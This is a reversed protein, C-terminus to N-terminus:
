VKFQTLLTVQVGKSFVHSKDHILIKKFKILKNKGQM